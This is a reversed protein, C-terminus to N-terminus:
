IYTTPDSPSWIQMNWLVPDRSNILIVSLPHTSSNCHISHIMHIILAMQFKLFHAKLRICLLTKAFRQHQARNRMTLIFKLLVVIWSFNFLLYLVYINNLWYLMYLTDVKVIHMKATSYEVNKVSNFPIQWKFKM